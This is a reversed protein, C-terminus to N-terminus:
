TLRVVTLHLRVRADNQHQATRKGARNDGRSQVDSSVQGHAEGAEFEVVDQEPM